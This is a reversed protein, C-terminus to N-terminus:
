KGGFCDLDHNHKLLWDVALGKIEPEIGTCHLAMQRISIELVDDNPLEFCKPFFGKENYKSVFTKFPDVTGNRICEVIAVDRDKAYECVENIM